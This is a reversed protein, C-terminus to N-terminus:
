DTTRAVVDRPTIGPVIEFEVLDSWKSTLEDFLGPEATTSGVRWTRSGRDSCRGRESVGAYVPEPGHAYTEIVMYLV